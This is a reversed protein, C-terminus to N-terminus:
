LSFFKLFTHPPIPVHSSSKDTIEGYRERYDPDDAICPHGYSAWFLCRCHRCLKIMEAYDERLGFTKRLKHFAAQWDSPLTGSNKLALVQDDSFHFEVLERWLRKESCLRSMVPWSQRCSEVDKHNVLRLLIERICEEPLEDLRPSTEPKRIIMSDAISNIRRIVALHRAWLQTSGLPRGWCACEILGDLQFILRRLVETNEQSARIQHAVEEVMTFLVRQVGGPLDSFPRESCLLDLLKCIYNFRRRDRVAARWDLRKLADSLGTFGAIEKSAKTIHCHPQLTSTDKSAEALQLNEEKDKTMWVEPSDQFTDNHFRDDKLEQLFNTSCELVKKKEWGEETKVWEEGPSRWDKSIFPMVILM